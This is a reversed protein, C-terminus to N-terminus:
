ASDAQLEGRLTSADVILLTMGSFRLFNSASNRSPATLSTRTVPFGIAAIARSKPTFSPVQAIPHDLVLGVPLTDLTQGAVIRRLQLPQAPLIRLQPHFTIDELATTPTPSCASPESTPPRPYYRPSAVSSATPSPIPQEPPVPNPHRPTSYCWPPSRIQFNRPSASSTSAASRTVPWCTRGPFRPATLCRTCTRPLTPVTRPATRQTAGAADPATM